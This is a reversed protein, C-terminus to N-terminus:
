NHNWVRMQYDHDKAAADCVFPIGVYVMFFFLALLGLAKAILGRALHRPSVHPVSSYPHRISEMAPFKNENAREYTYNVSINSM